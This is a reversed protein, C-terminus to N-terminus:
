DRGYKIKLNMKGFKDLPVAQYYYYGTEVYPDDYYSSNPLKDWIKYKFIVYKYDTEVPYLNSSPYINENCFLSSNNKLYNEIGQINIENGNAEAEIDEGIIFEKDIYDPFSSLGISYLFAKITYTHATVEPDEFSDIYEGRYETLEIPAFHIPGTYKNTNIYFLADTTIIDRRTISLDQNEQLYINYNTTDLVACVPYKINTNTDPVWWSNFAIATVKKGYYDSIKIGESTDKAYDWITANETTEYNYQVVIQEKSLIQNSICGSLLCIDFDQNHLDTDGQLNELPTDFKLLCYRLNRDLWMGTTDKFQANVFMKLYADLILNNFDYKKNGIKIRVLDNKIKM